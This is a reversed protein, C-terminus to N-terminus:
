ESGRPTKASPTTPQAAPAPSAPSTESSAPQAASPTQQTAGSNSNTKGISLTNAVIRVIAAALVVVALGIISTVLTKKGKEALEENGASTLYRFGGIIIFIVAASGALALLANIVWNIAQQATCIQPLDGVMNVEKTQDIYPIKFWKYFEACNKEADAGSKSTQALAPQAFLAAALSLM